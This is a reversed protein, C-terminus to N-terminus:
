FGWACRINSRELRPLGMRTNICCGCLTVNQKTQLGQSGKNTKNTSVRPVSSLLSPLSAHPLLSGAARSGVAKENVQFGRPTSIRSKSAAEGEQRRLVRFDPGASRVNLLVQPLHTIIIHISILKNWWMKRSLTASKGNEIAMPFQFLMYLAEWKVSNNGFNEQILLPSIRFVLAPRLHALNSISM